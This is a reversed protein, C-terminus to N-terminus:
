HDHGSDTSNLKIKKGCHIKTHESRTVLQLNEIRNDKKNGNIHHIIYGAPIEGNYKIWVQKHVLITRGGESTSCYESM